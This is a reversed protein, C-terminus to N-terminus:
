TKSDFVEKLGNFIETKTVESIKGGEAVQLNRVSPMLRAIMEAFFKDEENLEQPYPFDKSQQHSTDQTNLKVTNM